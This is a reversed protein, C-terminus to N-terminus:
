AMISPHRGAQPRKMTVGLGEDPEGGPEGPVPAGQLDQLLGPRQADAPKVAGHPQVPRAARHQAFTARDTGSQSAV